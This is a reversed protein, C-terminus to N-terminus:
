HFCTANEMLLPPRGDTESALTASPYRVQDRPILCCVSCAGIADVTKTLDEEGAEWSASCVFSWPMGRRECELSM